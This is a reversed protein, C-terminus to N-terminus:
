AVPLACLVGLRRALARAKRRNNRSESMHQTQGRFSAFLVRLIRLGPTARARRNRVPNDRQICAARTPRRDCYEPSRSRHVACTLLMVHMGGQKRRAHMGGLWLPLHRCMRQSATTCQAHSPMAVAHKGACKGRWEMAAKAGMDHASNPMARAILLVKVTRCMCSFIGPSM